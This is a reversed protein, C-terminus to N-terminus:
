NPAIVGYAVTATCTQSLIRVQTRALTTEMVPSGVPIDVFAVHTAWVTYVELSAYDIQEQTLKPNDWKMSVRVTFEKPLGHHLVTAVLDILSINAHEILSHQKVMEGLEVAGLFPEDQGPKFGCDNFLCTLDAKVHVGVKMIQLSQLFVLLTHPLCLFGNKM